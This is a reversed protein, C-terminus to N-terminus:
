VGLCVVTSTGRVSRRHRHGLVKRNELGVQSPAASSPRPKQEPSVTVQEHLARFAPPRRGFILGVSCEELHHQTGGADGLPTAFGAPALIARAAALRGSLTGILTGRGPPGLWANCKIEAAGGKTMGRRLGRLDLGPARHTVAAAAGRDELSGISRGGKRRIPWGAGISAAQHFSRGAQGSWSHAAGVRQLLGRGDREGEESV